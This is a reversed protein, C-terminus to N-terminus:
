HWIAGMSFNFPPSCGLLRLRPQGRDPRHGVPCRDDGGHYRRLEGAQIHQGWGTQDEPEILPPLPSSPCVYIKLVFDQLRGVNPLIGPAPQYFRDTGATMDLEGFLSNQEVFPLINTAWGAAWRPTVTFACATRAPRSCAM